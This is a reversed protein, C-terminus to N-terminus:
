FGYSIGLAVVPYLEYENLDNQMNQEEQDIDQQSILNMSDGSKTLTVEPAGQQVAGVEFTFGFGSAPLNGWGLGVYPGSGLDITTHLTVPYTSGDLTTNGVTFQGTPTASGVLQSAGNVYGLTVHFTGKFPHWDLFAATSKLELDATYDIGDITQSDDQSYKNMAARAVFRDSIPLGLEVGTGLTSAKVGVGIACAMSSAGMLAAGAAALMLRKM